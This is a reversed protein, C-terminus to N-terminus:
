VYFFILIMEFIRFYGEHSNVVIHDVTRSQTTESEVISRCQQTRNGATPSVRVVISPAVVMPLCSLGYPLYRYRQLRSDQRVRKSYMFVEPLLCISQKPSITSRISDTMREDGNMEDKTHCAFVRKM